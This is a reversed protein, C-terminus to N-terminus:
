ESILWYKYAAEQGRMTGCNVEQEVADDHARHKGVTGTPATLQSLIQRGAFASFIRAHIEKVPKNFHM